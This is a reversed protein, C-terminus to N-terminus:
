PVGVRAVDTAPATLIITHVNTDSSLAEVLEDFRDGATAIVAHADAHNLVYAITDPTHTLYVPVNVLGAILTGMDALCFYVDSEQFLAVRDGPRLGIDLLGVALEEAADKFESSSYCRWDKGERQCFARANPHSATAAYLLSPLTRGLHSPKGVRKAINIRETM